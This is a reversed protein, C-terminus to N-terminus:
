IKYEGFFHNDGVDETPYQMYFLVAKDDPQKEWRIFEGTNGDYVPIHGPNIAINKIHSLGEVIPEPIFCGTEDFKRLEM